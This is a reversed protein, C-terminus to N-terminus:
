IPKKPLFEDELPYGIFEPVIGSESFKQTLSVGEHTPLIFTVQDFECQTFNCKEMLCIGHLRAPKKHDVVIYNCEQHVDKRKVCDSRLHMVMPGSFRCGIFSKNEITAHLPDFLDSLEIIENTFVDELININTKQKTRKDLIKQQSKKLKISQYFLISSLAALLAILAICLGTFAWGIPGWQDLWQSASALWSSGAFITLFGVGLSWGTNFNGIWQLVKNIM